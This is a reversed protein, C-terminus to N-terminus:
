DLDYLEDGDVSGLADIGSANSASARTAMTSSVDSGARDIEAFVDDAAASKYNAMKDFDPYHDNGGSAAMSALLGGMGGLAPGVDDIVEEEGDKEEEVVVIKKKESIKESEFPAPEWKEGDLVELLAMVEKEMADDPAGHLASMGAKRAEEVRGLRWLAQAKRFKAKVNGPQMELAADCDLLAAKANLTGAMGLSDDSSWLHNELHGCTDIAGHGAGPSGGRALYAAARNCHYTARRPAEDFLRRYSVPADIARTYHEIAASWERKAFADNGRKKHADGTDADKADDHANVKRDHTEDDGASTEGSPAEASTLLVTRDAVVVDGDGTDDGPDGSTDERAQRAASEEAARVAEPGNLVPVDVEDKFKGFDELLTKALKREDDSVSPETRVSWSELMALLDDSLRLKNNPCYRLRLWSAYFALTRLALSSAGPFSDQYNLMLNPVLPSRALELMRQHLAADSSSGVAPPEHWPYLEERTLAGLTEMAQGRLHLNPHACMSVLARLGGALIFEKAFVWRKSHCLYLSMLYTVQCRFQPHSEPAGNPPDALLAPYMQADDEDPWYVLGRCRDPTLNQRLCRETQSVPPNAYQRALGARIQTQIEKPTEPDTADTLFSEFRPDVATDVETDAMAGASRTM